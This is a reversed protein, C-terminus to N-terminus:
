RRAAGLLGAIHGVEILAWCKQTFRRPDQTPLLLAAMRKPSAVLKLARGVAARLRKPVTLRERGLRMAVDSVGQWYYRQVFWRQSLRSAPVHHGVSMPPHYYCAHGARIIQEQLYVDGGSLLNKGARDLSAAFGGVSTMVDARVALNAGVLWQVRVDEIVHPTDSWDIVTLCTVLEDSIWRPRPSEWIGEARGGVCGPPPSLSEFATVTEALWRPSAIADDDLYAIYKGRAARWGANRAHALGLTGEYVYRIDLSDRYRAVVTPTDDTSQNDVVIVEFSSRPLTQAVLSDLAKSLYSSRNHTCIVVSLPLAAPAASGDRSM